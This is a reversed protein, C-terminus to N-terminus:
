RKMLVLLNSNDKELKPGLISLIEVIIFHDEDEQNLNLNYTLLKSFLERASIEFYPKEFFTEYRYIGLKSFIREYKKLFEPKCRNALDVRSHIIKFDFVIKNEVRRTYNQSNSIHIRFYKLNRFERLMSDIFYISTVNSPLSSDPITDFEQLDDIFKTHLIKNVEEAQVFFSNEENGGFKVLKAKKRLDAILLRDKYNNSNLFIELILPEILSSVYEDGINDTM